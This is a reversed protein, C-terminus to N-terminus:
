QDDRKWLILSLIANEGGYIVRREVGVAKRGTSNMGKEAITNGDIYSIKFHYEDTIGMLEKSTNYSINLFSDLKQASINRDDQALGIEQALTSNVGWRDPKGHSKALIDAAQIASLQMMSSEQRSAFKATYNSYVFVLAGILVVFISAALFFDTISIQSRKKMKDM